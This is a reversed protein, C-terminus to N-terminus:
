KLGAFTQLFDGRRVVLRQRKVAQEEAKVVMEAVLVHKAKDPALFTGVPFPEGFRNIFRNLAIRNEPHNGIHIREVETVYERNLWLLVHEFERPERNTLTIAGRSQRVVIDLDEGVQAQEPFRLPSYASVLEPGATEVLRLRIPPLQSCAPAMLVLWGMGLGITLRKWQM